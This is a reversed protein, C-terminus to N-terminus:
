SCLCSDSSISQQSCLVFSDFEIQALQSAPKEIMTVSVAQQQCLLLSIHVNQPRMIQQSQHVCKILYARTVGTTSRALLRSATMLHCRCCLPVWLQAICVHVFSLLDDHFLVRLPGSVGIKKPKRRSTQYGAPFLFILNAHNAFYPYVAPLEARIPARAIPMRLHHHLLYSRIREAYDISPIVWGNAVECSSGQSLAV